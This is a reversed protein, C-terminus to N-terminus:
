VGTAPLAFDPLPAAGYDPLLVAALPLFPQGYAAALRDPQLVSAATGVIVLRGGQLLAVDDAVFRAENLDHLVLLVSSGEAALRRLLRLLAAAHGPDLSATPEDLLLLRPAPMPELQALARALQVRQQEGGSLSAYGRGALAATGTRAMARAVAAADERMAPTGHWPQRGLAVIEAARMPLSPAVRQSVVARRRALDRAPWQALPTGAFQVQGEEPALEGSALRLLSSKGAGNPGVVALIRGPPLHLTIDHLIRAGGRRLGCGRLRIM